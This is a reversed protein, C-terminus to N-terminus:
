GFFVSHEIHFVVITNFQLSIDDGVSQCEFGGQVSNAAAPSYFSCQSVAGFGGGKWKGYIRERETTIRTVFFRSRHKNPQCTKRYNHSSEVVVIAALLCSHEVEM